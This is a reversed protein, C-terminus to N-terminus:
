LVGGELASAADLAHRILMRIRADLAVARCTAWRALTWNDVAKAQAAAVKANRLGVLLRALEYDTRRTPSPPPKRPQAM